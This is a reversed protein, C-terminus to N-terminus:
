ARTGGKKKSFNKRKKGGRFIKKPYSQGRHLFPTEAIKVREGPSIEGKLGKQSYEGRM